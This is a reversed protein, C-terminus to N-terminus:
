INMLEIDICYPYFIKDQFLQCDFCKGNELKKGKSCWLMENSENVQGKVLCEGDVNTRGKECKKCFTSNFAELRGGFNAYFFSFPIFLLSSSTFLM